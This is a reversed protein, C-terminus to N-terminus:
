KYETVIRQSADKYAISTEYETALLQIVRTLGVLRVYKMLEREVKTSPIAAMDSGWM